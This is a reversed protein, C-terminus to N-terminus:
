TAWPKAKLREAVLHTFESQRPRSGDTIGFHSLLNTLQGEFRGETEYELLLPYM